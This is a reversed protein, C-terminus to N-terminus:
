KSTFKVQRLHLPFISRPNKSSWESERCKEVLHTFPRATSLLQIGPVTLIGSYVFSTLVYRQM